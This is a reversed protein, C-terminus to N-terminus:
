LTIKRKISKFNNKSGYIRSLNKLYKDFEKFAETVEEDTYNQKIFEAILKAEEDTEAGNFFLDILRPKPMDKLTTEILDKFQTETVGVNNELFPRTDLIRVQSRAGTAVSARSGDRLRLM